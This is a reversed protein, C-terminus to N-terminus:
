FSWGATAMGGGQVPMVAIPSRRSRKTRRWTWGHERGDMITSVLHAGLSAVVGGVLVVATVGAAKSEAELLNSENTWPEYVDAPPELTVHVLGVGALLVSDAIVWYLPGDFYIGAGFISPVAVYAITAPTLKPSFPWGNHNNRIIHDALHAAGLAAATWKLADSRQYSPVDEDLRGVGGDDAHANPVGLLAVAVTALLTTRKM